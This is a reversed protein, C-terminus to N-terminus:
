TGVRFPTVLSRLTAMVSLSVLKGTAPNDESPVVAITMEFSATDADVKITHTNRTM